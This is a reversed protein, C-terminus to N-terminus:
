LGLLGIKENFMFAWERWDTYTRPDPIQLSGFGPLSRASAAWRQWTSDTAESPLFGFQLLLPTTQATWREVTLFRPDISM